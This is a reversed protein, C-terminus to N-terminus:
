TSPTLSARVTIKVQEDDLRVEPPAHLLVPPEAPLKPSEIYRNVQEDVAPALRLLPAVHRAAKEM